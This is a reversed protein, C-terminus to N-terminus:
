HGPRPRQLDGGRGPFPRHQARRDPSGRSRPWRTSPSATAPTCRSAARPRRAAAHQLRALERAVGDADDDLARECYAGTHLEVVQAGLRASLRSRRQTRSSSCRCGSARAVKLEEVYHRLHNEGRVVDLGGETTKEERKEPVLCCAHPVHRLAIRWCRTPRRWRWISRCPDAREQAPRHRYGLHPASGGASARHHWRRRGGGGPAGRAPSRPPARRARQPHHGRSRHQCRPPPASRGYKKSRAVDTNEVFVREVKSVM